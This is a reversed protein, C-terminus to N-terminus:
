APGYRTIGPVRDFDTDASALDSLGHTQMVAVILADGSLLGHEISLATATEVVRTPTPLLRVGFGPIDLIAQRFRSLQQVAAPHKKLYIGIGPFSRKLVACAELTM